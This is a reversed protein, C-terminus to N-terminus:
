IVWLSPLISLILGRAILLFLFLFLKNVEFQLEREEIHNEREEHITLKNFNDELQSQL